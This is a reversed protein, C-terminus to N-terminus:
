FFVYGVSLLETNALTQEPAWSLKTSHHYHELDQDHYNDYLYICKDFSM